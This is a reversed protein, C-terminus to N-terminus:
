ALPRNKLALIKRSHEQLMQAGHVQRYSDVLGPDDLLQTMLNRLALAHMRGNLKCRM